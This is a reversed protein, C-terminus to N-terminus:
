TLASVRERVLAYDTALQRNKKRLGSQTNKLEVNEGLIRHAQEALPRLAQSERLARVLQDVLRRPKGALSRVISKRAKRSLPKRM